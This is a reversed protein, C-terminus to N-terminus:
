QCAEGESQEVRFQVSFGEYNKVQEEGSVLLALKMFLSRWAGLPRRGADYFRTSLPEVRIRGSRKQSCWGVVAFLHLNGQVFDQVVCAGRPTLFDWRLTGPSKVIQLTYENVDFVSTHTNGRRKSLRISLPHGGSQPATGHALLELDSQQLHEDVISRRVDVSRAETHDVFDAAESVVTVIAGSVAAYFLEQGLVTASGRRRIPVARFSVDLDLRFRDNALADAGLTLLVVSNPHDSIPLFNGLVDGHCYLRYQRHSSSLDMTTM